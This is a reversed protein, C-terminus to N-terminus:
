EASAKKMIYAILLSKKLGKYESEPFGAEKCWEQLQAVTMAELDEEKLADEENDAEEQEKEPEEVTADEPKQETEEAASKPDEKAGGVFEWDSTGKVLITACKASVDAYGKDDITILGDVPVILNMSKITPKTAHIKM